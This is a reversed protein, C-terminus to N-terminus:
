KPFHIAPGLHHLCCPVLSYPLSLIAFATMEKPLCLLIHHQDRQVVSYATNIVENQKKHTNVNMMIENVSIFGKLFFLNLIILHHIFIKFTGPSWVLRMAKKSHSCVFM